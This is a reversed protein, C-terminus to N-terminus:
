HSLILASQQAEHETISQPLSRVFTPAHMEELSEDSSGCEATSNRPIGEAAPHQMTVVPTSVALQRIGNKLTATVWGKSTSGSSERWQVRARESGKDGERFELVQLRTGVPVDGVKSTSLAHGARAVLPHHAVVVMELQEDLRYHPPGSSRKHQLM